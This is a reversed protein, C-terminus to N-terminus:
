IPVFSYGMATYGKKRKGYMTWAMPINVDVYDYVRVEQKGEYVRHLRGAYQQLTGAWSFPLVLFLTDLRPDDFGEGIYKGTAVIIRSEKKPVAKLRNLCTEREKKTRGGYMTIVHDAHGALRSAIVDVHEKRETLVLPSRGESLAKLIDAIIFENRIADNVLLGCLEQYNLNEAPFEFDTRRPFVVHNFPREAAQLKASVRHRIPGCQMIIIPHHGDKRTPTATLGLIYKAKVRKMIAEFSVASVHHCEDVIVHGYEAVIEDVVDKRKLSQMMGIDLFGNPKNKGGGIQGIASKKINLFMSLRDRWQDLLEQRHVLILTNTQRAAIMWAGIVTKGFATTAALIGLDHKILDAVALAQESRLEGHFTLDISKGQFREDILELGINHETLINNVDDLMGRPLGFHSKFNDSCGIVRPIEHTSRRMAQAKYFEPNQFAALRKLRNIFPSRLGAKEILLMNSQVIRVSEPLVGAIRKATMKKSPSRTWPDQEEDDTVSLQVGVLAGSQEAAAIIAEAHDLTIRRMSQFLEWQNSHPNLSEDLFVTNGHHVSEGQLPLAILNGFGGNPMTDQNPFFRDYTKFKIEHREEMTKTLIASGLKRAISAQIAHDFFIWIHGGNGSRSRELYAPVEMAACTKLYATADRQWEDGDFDAALFWCTDGPLIAYVGIVSKGALHSAMVTDTLTSYICAACKKQPKTCHPRKWEMVCAPAYGAKGTQQSVWRKAYVDERGRFLSRFIAIRNATAPLVPPSNFAPKSGVQTPAVYPDTRAPINVHSPKPVNKPPLVQTSPQILTKVSSQLRSIERKLALNEDKLLLNERHLADNEDFLKVNHDLSDSHAERLQELEDEDFDTPPKESKKRGM